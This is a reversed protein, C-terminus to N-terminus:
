RVPPPPGPPPPSRSTRRRTSRPQTTISGIWPSPPNTTGAGPNGARPPRTTGHARPPTRRPRSGSRTRASRRGTRTRHVLPDHRVQDCQCPSRRVPQRQRRDGPPGLDHVRRVHATEASTRRFGPPTRPRARRRDLRDLASSRRPRRASIPSMMKGRQAVERGSVRHDAVDAAAARHDRDLQDSSTRRGRGPRARRSRLAQWALPITASVASGVAVYDPEQWRQHDRRLQQPLRHAEQRLHEVSASARQEACTGCM